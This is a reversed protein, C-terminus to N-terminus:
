RCSTRAGGRKEVSIIIYTVKFAYRYNTKVILAGKFIQIAVFVIYPSKLISIKEESSRRGVFYNVFM